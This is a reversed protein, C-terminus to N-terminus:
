EILQYVCGLRDIEDAAAGIFGAVCYGEPAAFTMSANSQYSGGSITNGFNTTVSIYSIRYTGFWSKKAKSVTVSTIYEGPAFTLTQTSGGNGGAFVTTGDYCFGVRDLRSGTSITVSEPLTETMSDLFSFGTGGGGGYTDTTLYRPLLTYSFTATIPYHDSLQNGESDTFQTMLLEFYTADLEVNKGSRYWIKDVVEGYQGLEHVMLADGDEPVEGDMVLDIWCDTLGCAELVATEFNDGERTYRSNTDGMVIVARGASRSNIYAAIQNMNSRRAALSGEDCDADTHLNYVDVFYGDAIEIATYSFGKPTLQDSGETFVGHTEDWGVRTEMYIPFRSFTMMGDGFPVNGTFDTAYPLNLYRTLESNYAFDEQVNIIDYDNLLPSIQITYEAPSSSSIIAPLGGVNYSLVKFTGTANTDAYVTQMNGPAGTMALILAAALLVASIRKFGKLM